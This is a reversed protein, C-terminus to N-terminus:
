STNRARDDVALSAVGGVDARGANGRASVGVLGVTGHFLAYHALNSGAQGAISWVFAIGAGRGFRSDNLHGGHVETGALEAGDLVAQM